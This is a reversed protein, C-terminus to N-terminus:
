KWFHSKDTVRYKIFWKSGPTENVLRFYYYGDEPITYPSDSRSVFDYVNGVRTQVLTGDAKYLEKRIDIYTHDTQNRAQFYIEGAKAYFVGTMHESTIVTKDTVYTAAFSSNISIAFIFLFAFVGALVKKMYVGGNWKDSSM